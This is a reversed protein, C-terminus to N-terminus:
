GEVDFLFGRGSCLSRLTQTPYLGPLARRTDHRSPRWGWPQPFKSNFNELGAAEREAQSAMGARCHWAQGAIGHRGQLAMACARWRPLIDPVGSGLTMDSSMVRCSVVPCSMVPSSIIHCCVVHCCVVHCSLLRCSLVPCSLLRSSKGQGVGVAAFCFPWGCKSDLFGFTFKWGQRGVQWIGGKPHLSM